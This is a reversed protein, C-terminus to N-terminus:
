GFLRTLIVNATRIASITTKNIANIAKCL